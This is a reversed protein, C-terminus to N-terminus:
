RQQRSLRVWGEQGRRRGITLMSDIRSSRIEDAAREKMSWHEKGGEWEERQIVMM